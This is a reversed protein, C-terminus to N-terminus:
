GGFYYALSVNIILNSIRNDDMDFGEIDPNINTLGKACSASIIFPDFNYGVGLQFGFDTGKLYNDDGYLDDTDLENKFSYETSIKDGDIKVKAEGSIAVAFYPGGFFELHGKKFVVNVPLEVYHLISRIYDGSQMDFGSWATGKGSYFLGPRLTLWNQLEFDACVGLRPAMRFMKKSEFESEEFHEIVTAFNAGAQVGFKVQSIVHGNILMLALIILIRKM